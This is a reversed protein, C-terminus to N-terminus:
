ITWTLPSRKEAEYIASLDTNSCDNIETRFGSVVKNTYQVQESSVSERYMSMKIISWAERLCYGFSKGWSKWSKFHKHALTMVSRLIETRSKM